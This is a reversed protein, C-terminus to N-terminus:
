QINYRFGVNYTAADGNSDKLSKNTFSTWLLELEASQSFQYKAGLGAQAFYDFEDQWYPSYGTLAYITSNNTPRYSLILIVPTSFRNLHGVDKKGIDELLVDIETFLSFNDNLAFDNFFQTNWTAGGWDIYTETNSGALDKGIPFVFSSQISFNKLSTFPAYRIQPGFATLGSRNSIAGDSSFVGLPSSPLLDNKVWRYRTAFGVNLRNSAGYLFSLSSTMFTSRSLLTEGDGTRQSYLNNFLKMEISGQPITSSVVYRSDNNGQGANQALGQGIFTLTFALIYLLNKM